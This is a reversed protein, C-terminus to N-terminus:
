AQYAFVTKKSRATRRLMDEIVITTEDTLTVDGCEPCVGAPVGHLVLSRKQYIVTHSITGTEHEGTCGSTHCGMDDDEKGPFRPRGATSELSFPLSSVEAEPNGV